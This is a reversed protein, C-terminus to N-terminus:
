FVPWAPNCPTSLTSSGYGSNGNVNRGYTQSPSQHIDEDLSYTVSYFSHSTIVYTVYAIIIHPTTWVKTFAEIAQVGAQADRSIEDDSQADNADDHSGQVVGAEKDTSTKEPIHAM